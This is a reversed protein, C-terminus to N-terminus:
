TDFVATSNALPQLSNMGAAEMFSLYLNAITRHGNEKYSSFELYQGMKLKKAMGEVLVFPWDKQGDHHAGGSCSLYVILTNDLMSGNGEPIGELKKAMRAIHKFHSKEVEERCRIGDWGNGSLGPDNHGLAHVYKEIGLEKYVVALSDLHLTVVNTM